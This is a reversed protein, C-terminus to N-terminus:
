YWHETLCPIQSIPLDPSDPEITSLPNIIRTRESADLWRSNLQEWILRRGVFVVHVVSETVIRRTGRPAWLIMDKLDIMM